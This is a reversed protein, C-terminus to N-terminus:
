GEREKKRERSDSGQVGWESVREKGNEGGRGWERKGEGRGM